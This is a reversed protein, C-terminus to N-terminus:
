KGIKYINRYIYNDIVLPACQPRGSDELHHASDYCVGEQAKRTWTPHYRPYLDEDAVGSHKALSYISPSRSREQRRSSKAQVLKHKWESKLKRVRNQPDIAKRYSHLRSRTLFVHTPDSKPCLGLEPSSYKEWEGGERQDDIWDKL